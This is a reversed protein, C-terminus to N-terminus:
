VGGIAFTHVCFLALLLAAVGGAPLFVIEVLTREYKRERESTSGQEGYM